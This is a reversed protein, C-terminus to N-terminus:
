GNRKRQEAVRRYIHERLQHQGRWFIDTWRLKIGYHNNLSDVLANQRQTNNFYRSLSSGGDFFGPHNIWAVMVTEVVANLEALTIAGAFVGNVKPAQSFKGARAKIEEAREMLKKKQAEALRLRTKDNYARIDTGSITHIWLYGVQHGKWGQAELYKRTLAQDQNTVAINIGSPNQRSVWEDFENQDKATHVSHAGGLNYFNKGHCCGAIYDSNM